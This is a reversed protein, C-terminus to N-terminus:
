PGWGCLYTKTDNEDFGCVKRQTEVKCRCSFSPFRGRFFLIFVIHLHFVITADKNLAIDNEIFIYEHLLSSITNTYFVPLAPFIQCQNVPINNYALHVTGHTSSCILLEAVRYARLGEDHHCFRWSLRLCLCSKASDTLLCKPM